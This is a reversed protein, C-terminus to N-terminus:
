KAVKLRDREMCYGTPDIQTTVINTPYFETPSSSNFLLAILGSLNKDTCFVIITILASVTSIITIISIANKRKKRSILANQTDPLNRGKLAEVLLNINNKYEKTSSLDVGLKGKAWRPSSEYWSGSFLVPIYKRENHLEYLESTIITNEYGVGGENNDAKERYKPTCIYIIYDSECISQEMFRTIRDGFVMDGDYVVSIGKSRLYNVLNIVRQKHKKSDWSYSIFVQNDYKM